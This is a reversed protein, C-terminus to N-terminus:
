NASDLAAGSLTLGDNAVTTGTCQALLFNRLVTARRPLFSQTLAQSLNSSEDIQVFGLSSPWVLTKGLNAGNSVQHCGACTQTTARDLINDATLGAVTIKTAIQAKFAATAFNRYAVDFRQSVSEYENHVDKTTMALTAATSKQLTAVQNLFTAQFAAARPNTGDFLEDAPNTKVTVHEAKLKCSAGLACPKSLKFERLQWEQFGKFFNTRIQGGSRPTGTAALGYHTAKVVPEFKVTGAVLGSFYFQELKTARSTASADTSLQAWFDAVPACGTLGQAPTPNPLRAEFIIFARDGPSGTLAFVVRYEGCDAGSTPALDFRNMVAVPIYHPGTQSFPNITSFQSEARPCQIGYGEPDIKPDTCNAFTQMWEKFLTLPTNTAKGSTTIATMVRQFSFKALVAPDTVALSRATNITPVPCTVAQDLETEDPTDDETVCGFLSLCCLAFLRKTM